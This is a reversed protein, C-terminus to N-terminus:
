KRDEEDERADGYEWLNRRETKAEEQAKEYEECIKKYREGKRPEFYAFGDTILAKGIDVDDSKLTVYKEGNFEYEVNMKLEANSVDESFTKRASALEDEDKPMKVFALNCPHAFDPANFGAPLPQLKSVECEGRNGYDIYVLEAVGKVIKEIKVRYWNGDLFKAAARDGRKFTGGLGPNQLEKQLKAQLEELKPGDQNFQVYFKSVTSTVESVMVNKPEVKRTSKTDEQVEPVVTEEFTPEVYNEWIRLKKAKAAEEANKLETYYRTKEASYHHVSALGNKVLEVSLNKKDLTVMGIMAGNKDQSEVEMEIQHQLCLDRTFQMAEDGYPDGKQAPAGGSEPRGSRPCQIGNLLLTFVCNHKQCYVRLRSGSSVFEVIGSNPNGRQLSTFYQKSKILDGQLDAVRMPEPEKKAHVGVQKQQALGEAEQLELYHSSRQDNDQRYRIVTALGAAVLQEAVNQGNFKVTCCVKEPFNDSKPQIYDVQVQVNKGILRTRLFERAQFLLPQQYMRQAMTVKGQQEKGLEKRPPKISSLFIKRLTDGEKVVLMDAAVVEIVKATSNGGSVAAPKPAEKYDKWICLRKQKAVKEANRLTSAYVPDMSSLSWDQTQVLGNEVLGKAVDYQPHKIFGFLQGNNGAGELLIEVDQQLLGIELYYIARPRLNSEESPGRIGAINVTLYYHTGDLQVFARIGCANPHVSEVVAKLPKKKNKAIFSNVDNVQWVIKRLHTSADDAWIGVKSAKAQELLEKLKDYKESKRSVDRVNALGRSVISENLSEGDASTGKYVHCFVAKPSRHEVECTVDQGVLEKRLIERATWAYPEDVQKMDPTYAAVKPAVLNALHVMTDSPAGNAGRSWIVLTDSSNVKKIKGRITEVNLIQQTPQAM